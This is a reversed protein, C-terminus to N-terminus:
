FDGQLEQRFGAVIAAAEVETLRGWWHGTKDDNTTDLRADPTEVTGGTGDGGIPTRNNAEELFAWLRAYLGKWGHPYDAPLHAQYPICEAVEDATWYELGEPLPINHPTQPM